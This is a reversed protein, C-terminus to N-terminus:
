LWMYNDFMLKSWNASLGSVIRGFCLHEGAANLMLINQVWSRMRFCIYLLCLCVWYQLNGEVTQLAQTKWLFRGSHFSCTHCLRHFSSLLPVSRHIHRCRTDPHPYPLSKHLYKIGLRSFYLFVFFNLCFM